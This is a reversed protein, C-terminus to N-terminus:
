NKADSIRLNIKRMKWNLIFLAIGLSFSLITLIWYFPFYNPFRHLKLLYLIATSLMTMPSLILFFMLFKTGLKRYACHDFWINLAAIAACSFILAARKPQLMPDFQYAIVQHAITLLTMCILIIRWQKRVKLDDPRM